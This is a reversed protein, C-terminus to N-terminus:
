LAAANPSDFIVFVLRIHIEVRTRIVTKAVNSVKLQASYMNDNAIIVRRARKVKAFLSVHYSENKHAHKNKCTRNYYCRSHCRICYIYFLFKIVNISLQINFYTNLCM